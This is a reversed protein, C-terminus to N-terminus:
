HTLIRDRIVSTLPQVFREILRRDKTIIEATGMMEQNFALQNGYNTVLGRSLELEATYFAGEPGNVPVLSITSIIGDLIGYELHPYNDLKIKVRQGPEVKGSGALPIEVRGIIASGEDPVISFVPTGLSVQQNESWISTFTVKGAIPTKFVYTQEWEGIGAILNDYKERLAALLRNAQEGREAQLEAIQRQMQNIQNRTSTMGAIANRHNLENGLHESESKELDSASIVGQRALESDRNFQRRSLQLKDDLIRAQNVLQQLYVGQDEAQRRLTETRERFLDFKQFNVFESHQNVLATYLPNIQGLILSTEFSLSFFVEPRDFASQLTDLQKQLRYVDRYSAPNELVALIDGEKVKQQDTVYLHDIKGNARAVLSVPPNRSLITIRGKIMDPYRFFYSGALLVLVILSIVTTGRRILWGPPTGLIEQVEESRIEVKDFDNM